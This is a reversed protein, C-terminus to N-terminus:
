PRNRDFILAIRLVRIRVESRGDDIGNRAELKSCNNKINLARAREDHCCCSVEASKLKM